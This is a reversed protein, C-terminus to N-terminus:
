FNDPYGGPNQPEGLSLREVEEGVTREALRMTVEALHATSDGSEKVHDFAGRLERPLAGERFLMSEIDKLGTTKVQM